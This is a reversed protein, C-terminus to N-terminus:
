VSNNGCKDKCRILLPSQIRIIGANLHILDRGYAHQRTQLRVAREQRIYRPILQVTETFHINRIIFQHSCHFAHRIGRQNNVTIIDKGIRQCLLAPVAKHCISDTLLNKVIDRPRLDPLADEAPIAPLLQFVIEEVITLQANVVTRVAAPFTRLRIICRLLDLQLVLQIGKIHISHMDIGCRARRVINVIRERCIRRKLGHSRTIDSELLHNFSKIVAIVSLANEIDVARPNLEMQRLVRDSELLLNRKHELIRFRLINNDLDIVSILIALIDGPEPIHIELIQRVAVRSLNNGCARSAM